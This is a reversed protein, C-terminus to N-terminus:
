VWGFLGVPSSREPYGYGLRQRLTTMRGRGPDHFLEKRTSPDGRAAGTPRKSGRPEGLDEFRGSLKFRRNGCAQTIRSLKGRMYPYCYDEEEWVAYGDERFRAHNLSYTLSRGFPRM